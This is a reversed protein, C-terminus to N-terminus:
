QSLDDNPLSFPDFDPHEQAYTSLTPHLILAKFYDPEDDDVISEIYGCCVSKPMTVSYALHLPLRATSLFDSLSALSSGFLIYLFLIYLCPSSVVSRALSSGFLISQPFGALIVHCTCLFSRPLPSYLPTGPLPAQRHTSHEPPRRSCEPTEPTEPTEPNGSLVESHPRPFRPCVPFVCPISSLCLSCPFYCPNGKCLPIVMKPCTGVM